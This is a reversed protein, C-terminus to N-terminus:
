ELSFVSKIYDEAVRPYERELEHIKAALSEPTDNVDVTCKSQFLIRGHDYQEDCLHVTIGSEKEGAGIVAQHVHMGHMGKGGYKPLLAPHINLVKGEYKELLYPPIRLLFGALIIIDIHCSELLPSIHNEDLLQAPTIVCSPVDFNEARKLVYADPKNCLVLSVEAINSERFRNMFNEANTGSGSAFVAIHIM